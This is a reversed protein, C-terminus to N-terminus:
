SGLERQAEKSHKGHTAYAHSAVQELRFDCAAPITKAGNEWDRWTAARVHGGISRYVASAQEYTWGPEVRMRRLDAGSFRDSRTIPRNDILHLPSKPGEIALPKRGRPKSSTSVGAFYLKQNLGMVPRELLEAVRGVDLNMHTVLYKAAGLEEETYRENHRRRM